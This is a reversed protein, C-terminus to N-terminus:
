FTINWGWIHILIRYLWGRLNSNAQNLFHKKKHTCWQVAPQGHAHIRLSIDYYLTGGVNASSHLCKFHTLRFFHWEFSKTPTNKGGGIRNTKREWERKEAKADWLLGYPRPPRHSPVLVTLLLHIVSYQISFDLTVSSENVTVGWGVAGKPKSPPLASLSLESKFNM